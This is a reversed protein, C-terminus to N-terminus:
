DRSIAFKGGANRPRARRTRRMTRQLRTRASKPRRSHPPPETPEPAGQSPSEPAAMHQMGEHLEGAVGKREGFFFKLILWTAISAVVLAAVCTFINLEM